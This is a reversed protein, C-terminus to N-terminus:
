EEPIKILHIHTEWNTKCESFQQSQKFFRMTEPMSPPKKVGKEITVLERKIDFKTQDVWQM